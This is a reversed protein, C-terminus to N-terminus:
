TINYTWTQLFKHTQVGVFAPTKGQALCKVRTALCHEPKLNVSVVHCISM